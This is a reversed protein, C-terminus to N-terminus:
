KQGGLNQNYHTKPTSKRLKEWLAINKIFIAIGTLLLIGFTYLLPWPSIPDYATLPNVVPPMMKQVFTMGYALSFMMAASFGSIIVGAIARIFCDKETPPEISLGRGESKVDEM